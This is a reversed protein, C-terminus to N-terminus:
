RTPDVLFGDADTTQRHGRSVGDMDRMVGSLARCGAMTLVEGLTVIDAAPWETRRDDVFLVVTPDGPRVPTKGDPGTIRYRDNM